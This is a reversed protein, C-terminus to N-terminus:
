RWQAYPCAAILGMVPRLKKSDSNVVANPNGAGLETILATRDAPDIARGAFLSLLRDVVQTATLGAGGILTNLAASQAPTPTQRVNEVFSDFEGFHKSVLANAMTWRGFVQNTSWWVIGVDPYGTPASFDFLTQGQLEIMGYFDRPGLSSWDGPVFNMPTTIDMGRMAGAFFELPRKVKQGWSAAFKPHLLLARLTTRIDGHSDMFAKATAEIADPCFADPYDSIFRRCLKFAIFYATSPHETLIDLLQEGQEIGGYPFFHMADNGLWMTKEPWHHRPWNNGNNFAFSEEPTLTSTWGSLIQAAVAVDKETYNPKKLYDPGLVRSYSGVTHLEMLERAYNENPNGGDSYKNSLFVLMSPSKASAGLLDRFNGFAHQRIVHHDEWYKARDVASTQFHNTWFDVMVEFLQRKSLLARAYTATWLLDKLAGPAFGGAAEVLTDYAEIERMSADLRPMARGDADVYALANIAADCANDDIAEINLQQDVFATLDFGGFAAVDAPRPGFTMRNWALRAISPAAGPPASPQQLNSM